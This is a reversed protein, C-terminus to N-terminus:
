SKLQKSSVTVTTNHPYLIKVCKVIILKLFKCINIFYLDRLSHIHLDHIISIHKRTISSINYTWAWNQVPM